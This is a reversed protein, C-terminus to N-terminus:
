PCSSTIPHPVIYINRRLHYVPTFLSVYYQGCIGKDAEIIAAPGGTKIYDSHNIIGTSDTYLM